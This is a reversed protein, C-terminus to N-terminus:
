EYRAVNQVGKVSAFIFIILLLDPM